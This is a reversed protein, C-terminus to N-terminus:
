EAPAAEEAPEAKADPDWAYIDKIMCRQPGIGAGNGTFSSSVILHDGKSLCSTRADIGITMASDLELCTGLVEVMYERSGERLVVTERENLSFGDISSSFCINSVQEGLRPDGEYAAIGRVRPEGPTSQCAALLATSFILLAPRLM